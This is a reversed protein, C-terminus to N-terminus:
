TMRRKGSRSEVFHKVLIRTTRHNEKETAASFSLTRTTQSFFQVVHTKIGVSLEFRGVVLLSARISDDDRNVSFRKMSGINPELWIENAFFGASEM